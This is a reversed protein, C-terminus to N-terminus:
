RSRVIIRGARGTGPPSKAMFISRDRCAGCRIEEEAQFLERGQIKESPLFLGNEADALSHLKDIKVKAAGDSVDCVPREMLMRVSVDKMRGIVLGAAKKMCKETKVHQYVAAVVLTDISRCFIKLDDLTGFVAFRFGDGM